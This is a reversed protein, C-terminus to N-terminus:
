VWNMGYSRVAVSGLTATLWEMRQLAKNPLTYYTWMTLRSGGRGVGIM